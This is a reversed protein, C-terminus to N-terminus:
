VGRLAPARAREAAMLGSTAPATDPLGRTFAGVCAGSGAVGSGGGCV